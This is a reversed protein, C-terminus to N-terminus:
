HGVQAALGTDSAIWRLLKLTLQETIRCNFDAEGLIIRAVAVAASSDDIEEKTMKKLLKMAKGCYKEGTADDVSPDNGILAAARYAVALETISQLGAM